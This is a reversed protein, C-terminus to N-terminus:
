FFFPNIASQPELNQVSFIPERGLDKLALLSTNCKESSNYIWQNRVQQPTQFKSTRSRFSLLFRCFWLLSSISVCGIQLFNAIQLKSTALSPWGLLPKGTVWCAQLEHQSSVRNTRYTRHSKNFPFHGYAKQIFRPPRLHNQLWFNVIHGRFSIGLYSTM